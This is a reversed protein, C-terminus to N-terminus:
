CWGDIELWLNNTSTTFLWWIGKTRAINVCSKLFWVARWTEPCTIIHYTIPRAELILASDNDTNFITVKKLLVCPSFIFFNQRARVCIFDPQYRNTVKGHASFQTRKLEIELTKYETQVFWRTAPFHAASNPQYESVATCNNQLTQRQGQTSLDHKPNWKFSHKKGDFYFELSKATRQRTM